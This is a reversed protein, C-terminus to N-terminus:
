AKTKVCLSPMPSAVFHWGLRLAMHVISSKHYGRCVQTGNGAGDDEYLDWCTVGDDDASEYLVYHLQWEQGFEDGDREDTVIKLVQEM